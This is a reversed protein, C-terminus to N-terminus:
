NDKPPRRNGESGSRGPNVTSATFSETRLAELQQKGQPSPVLRARGDRISWVPFRWATTGAFSGRRGFSDRQRGTHSRQRSEGPLIQNNLLANRREKDTEREQWGETYNLLFRAFVFSEFKGKLSDYETIGASQSASPPLHGSTLLKLGTQGVHHFGMEIPLSLSPFQKFWPPPPQLLGLDRQQVGAQVVSHSMESSNKNGVSRSIGPPSGVPAPSEKPRRPQKAPVARKGTPSPRIPEAPGM